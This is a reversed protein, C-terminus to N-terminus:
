LRQESISLKPYLREPSQGSGGNIPKKRLFPPVSLEGVDLGGFCCDGVWAGLLRGVAFKELLAFLAAVACTLRAIAARELIESGGWFGFVKRLRPNDRAFHLASQLNWIGCLICRVTSFGRSLFTRPPHPLNPPLLTASRRYRSAANPVRRFPGGEGEM